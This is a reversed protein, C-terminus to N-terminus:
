HEALHSRRMTSTRNSVRGWSRGQDVIARRRTQLSHPVEPETFMTGLQCSRTPLATGNVLCQFVHSESRSISRRGVGLLGNEGKPGRPM